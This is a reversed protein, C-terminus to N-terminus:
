APLRAHSSSIVEHAPVFNRVLLLISMIVHEAVSVVNSGSVEAVLIKKKNASELDIHDSGVGATICLKLNRAKEILDSTLYGPHFPTTILVDATEIEKHFVSNPGEKSSTV